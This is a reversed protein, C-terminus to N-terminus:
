FMETVKASGDQAEWVGTIIGTYAPQPLEYYDGPEFRATYDTTSANLGYKLYLRSTSDNQIALAVRSPNGAVITVPSISSSVSSVVASSAGITFIRMPIDPDGLYSM